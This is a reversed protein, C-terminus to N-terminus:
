EKTRLTLIMIQGFIRYREVIHGKYTTLARLKSESISKDIYFFEGSPDRHKNSLDLLSFGDRSVFYNIPKFFRSLADRSGHLGIEREPSSQEIYRAISEAESYFVTKLDSASGTSLKRSWESFSRANGAMLIFLLLFLPVATAVAGFKRNWRGFQKMWLGVLVFPLFFSTIYYRTSVQTIVPISIAFSIIAYIAIIFLFDRRREDPEGRLFRALLLYGVFVFVSGLLFTALMETDGKRLAAQWPECKGINGWSSVMYVGSQVQCATAENLNRLFSGSGNESSAETFASLFRRSNSYHHNIDSYIQAWNALLFCGILLLFGKWSFLGRRIWVFFGVASVVPLIFIFLTHLQIAVGMSIGVLAPWVIKGKNKPDITELLAFLFLLSFFPSANPNWAFRSYKVIFFSSSVLFSLFLAEEPSFYKKALFFFLIIAFVSFLLEPYALDYPDSGFILGSVYQWHYAMPGLQFGTNGSEAGLLPLPKEGSIAADVLLADRAQDPSFEMWSQFHFTRLFIGLVVIGALIAWQTKKDGRIKERIRSLTDM